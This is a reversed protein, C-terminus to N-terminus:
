ERPAGHIYHDHFQSFDAPLDDAIGVIDSFEELLTPQWAIPAVTEIRVPTGNPLDIPKEFVVVGDQVHGLLTMTRDGTEALVMM